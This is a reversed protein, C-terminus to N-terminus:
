IKTHGTHTQRHTPYCIMTSAFVMDDTGLRLLNSAQIFLVYLLTGLSLSNLDMNDSLLVNCYIHCSSMNLWLLLAVFLTPNTPHQVFNSLFPLLCNLSTKMFYLTLCGRDTIFSQFLTIHSSSPFPFDFYCLHAGALHRFCLFSHITYGITFYVLVLRLPM